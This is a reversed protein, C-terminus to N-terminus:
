EKKIYVDFISQNAEFSVYVCNKLNWYHLSPQLPLILQTVLPAVMAPHEYTEYLSKSDEPYTTFDHNIQQDEKIRQVVSRQRQIQEHYYGEKTSINVDIVDETSCSRKSPFMNESVVVTTVESQEVSTSFRTQQELDGLEPAVQDDHHHAYRGSV